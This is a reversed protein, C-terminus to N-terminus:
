VGVGLLPLRPFSVGRGERGSQGKRENRKSLVRTQFSGRHSGRGPTGAGPDGAEGVIESEREVEVSAGGEVEVSAGGEVAGVTLSEAVVEAEEAGVSEAESRGVAEAPLLHADVDGEGEGVSADEGGVLLESAGIPGVEEEFLEAVEVPEDGAPESGVFPHIEDSVGSRDPDVRAWRESWGASLGASLRELFGSRLVAESRVPRTRERRSRAEESVLSVVPSVFLSKSVFVKSGFDAERVSRASPADGEQPGAGESRFGGAFPMAPESVVSPFERVVGGVDGAAKGEGPMFEVVAEDPRFHSLSGDKRRRGVSERIVAKDRGRFTRLNRHEGRSGRGREEESGVEETRGAVRRRREDFAEEGVAGEQEEGGFGLEGLGEESEIEAEGDRDSRGDEAREGDVAGARDSVVGELISLVFEGPPEAEVAEGFAVRAAEVAGGSGEIEGGRVADVAPRLFERGDIGDEDEDIGGGFGQANPVPVLAGLNVLLEPPEAGEASAEARDKQDNVAALLFALAAILDGSRVRQGRRDVAPDRQLLFDLKGIAM